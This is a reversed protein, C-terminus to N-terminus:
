PPVLGLVRFDKLLWLSSCSLLHSYQHSLRATISPCDLLCFVSVQKPRGQLLLRFIFSIRIVLKSSNANSSIAFPSQLYRPRPLSFASSSHSHSSLACTCCMCTCLYPYPMSISISCAKKKSPPNYIGKICLTTVDEAVLYFIKWPHYHKARRQGM